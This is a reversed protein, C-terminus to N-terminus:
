QNRGGNQQTENVIKILKKVVNGNLMVKSQQWQVEGFNSSEDSKLKPFRRQPWKLSSPWQVRDILIYHSPGGVNLLAKYPLPPLKVSRFLFWSHGGLVQSGSKVEWVEIESQGQGSPWPTLFFCVERFREWVKELKKSRIKEYNGDENQAHRKFKKTLNMKKM